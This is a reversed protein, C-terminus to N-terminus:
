RRKSISGDAAAYPECCAVPEPHQQSQYCRSHMLRNGCDTGAVTMGDGIVFPQSCIWCKRKYDAAAMTEESVKYIERVWNVDLRQLRSIM